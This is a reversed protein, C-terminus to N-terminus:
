PSQIAEFRSYTGDLDLGSTGPLGSALPRADPPPLVPGMGAPGAAGGKGGGTGQGLTISTAADNLPMSGSYLVGVSIGGTGGAGGSGCAGNGGTGGSSAALQAGLGGYEGTGGKAGPGGNGGNATVLSCGLLNVTSERSVLAVSAGGGAGGQGGEGGCGGLGGAAGPLYTETQSDYGSGGGGGGEGPTGTAGMGGRSPVWAVTDTLQGITTAAVGGPGVVGDAGDDGDAATNSISSPGGMGTLMPPPPYAQGEGGNVGASGGAGGTSSYPMAAMPPTPCTQTPAITGQAAAAPQGSAFMDSPTGAAGNAGDNATLVVRTFTVSSTNVWAAISSEGSGDANPMTGSPAEFSIDQIALTAAVHSVTLTPQSADPGTVRAVGGMYTWAARNSCNLGGFLNAQHASDISVAETYDGDCIFVNSKGGLNALAAGITPFPNEMTGDGTAAAADGPPTGGADAASPPAVFVGFADAVVCPNVIPPKSEDCTPADSADLAGDGVIAGADAMADVAADSAADAMADIAGSGADETANPIVIVPPGSDDGSPLGAETVNAPAGVGTPGTGTCGGVVAATLGYAGRRWAAIWRRSTCTEWLM